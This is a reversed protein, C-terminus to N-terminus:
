ACTIVGSTMTCTKASQSHTATASWDPPPGPKYTAVITVNQSPTFGQLPSAMTATGGFYSGGNDAAYQEEYTALNRLDSKMQAVYAKDKTNAFKPIAIAALIGIIVVVILLEILTFGKKTGM